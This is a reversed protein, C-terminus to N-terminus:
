NLYLLKADKFIRDILTQMTHKDRSANKWDSLARNTICILIRSENLFMLGKYLLSLDEEPLNVYLMEDVIIVDSMKLYEHIKKERSNMVNNKLVHILEDCKIYYVKYGKELALHGLSVAVATKGVGCKGTILVNQEEKIFQLKKLDKVNWEDIGQISPDKKINPLKSRKRNEAFTNENRKTIEYNVMYYLYEIPYTIGVDFSKIKSVNHLNVRKLLLRLEEQNVM